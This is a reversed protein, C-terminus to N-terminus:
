GPVIREPLSSHIFINALVLVPRVVIICYNLNGLHLSSAHKSPDQLCDNM